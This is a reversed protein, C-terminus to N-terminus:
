PDGCANRAPRHDRVGDGQRSLRVKGGGRDLTTDIPVGAHADLLRSQVNGYAHYAVRGAHLNVKPSEGARSQLYWTTSGIEYDGVCADAGLRARFHRM